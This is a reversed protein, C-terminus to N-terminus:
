APLRSVANAFHPGPSITDSERDWAINGSKAMLGLSSGTRMALMKVKVLGRHTKLEEMIAERTATEHKQLYRVIVAAVPGLKHTANAATERPRPKPGPKARYRPAARPAQVHHLARLKTLASRMTVPNAKRGTQKQYLASLRTGEDRMPATLDAHAALFAMLTGPRHQVSSPQPAHGNSSSLGLGEAAKDLTRVAKAHTGNETYGDLTAIFGELRTVEARAVALDALARARLSHINKAM